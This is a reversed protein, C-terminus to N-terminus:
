KNPPNIYRKFYNLSILGGKNENLGRISFNSTPSLLNEKLVMFIVTSSNNKYCWNIIGTHIVM